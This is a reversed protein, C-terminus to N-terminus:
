SFEEVRVSVGPADGYRKDKTVSVVQVDDKWVVGNMADFLAKEVNDVDPKTTPLVGGAVASAQKKQSWSAPIQCAIHLHVRVAGEILPRGAMALSAFLKVTSEYSATKAPTFMRANGAVRGIRPRGKGVPQGPVTFAVPEAAGIATSAAIALSGSNRSTM